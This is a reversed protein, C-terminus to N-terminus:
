RNFLLQVLQGSNRLHERMADEATSSDQSEIATLLKDHSLMSDARAPRDRWYLRWFRLNHSLLREAAEQLIPNKIMHVLFAHVALDTQLFQEYDGTLRAADAAAVLRKMEELDGQSVRTAAIYAIGCEITERAEFMALVDEFTIPAVIVGRRPLITVFRDAALRALAERVPTRGYGLETALFKEHLVAGPPLSLDVIRTLLLAYAADSDRQEAPPAEDLKVNM